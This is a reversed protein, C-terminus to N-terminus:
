KIMRMEKLLSEVARASASRMIEAQSEPPISFNEDLVANGPQYLELGAGSGRGVIRNERNDLLFASIQVFGFGSDLGTGSTHLRPYRFFYHNIEPLFLYEPDYESQILVFLETPMHAASEAVRDVDEPDPVDYFGMPDLYGKVLKPLLREASTFYAEKASVILHPKDLDSSMYMHCGIAQSPQLGGDRELLARHDGLSEPEQGSEVFPMIVVRMLPVLKAGCSTCFEAQPDAHTLCKPCYLQKAM